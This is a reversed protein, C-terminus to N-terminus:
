SECPYFPGDNVTGRSRSQNGGTQSTEHVDNEQVVFLSAVFVPPGLSEHLEHAFGAESRLVVVDVLGGLAGFNQVLGVEHHGGAAVARNALGGQLDEAAARGEHGKGEARGVVDRAAEAEAAFGFLDDAPQRLGRRRFNSTPTACVKDPL